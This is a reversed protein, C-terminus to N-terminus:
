QVVKDVAVVGHDAILHDVLQHLHEGCVAVKGGEVRCRYESPASCPSSAGDGDIEVSGCVENIM